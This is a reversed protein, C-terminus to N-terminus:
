ALVKGATVHKHAGNSLELGWNIVGSQDGRPLLTKLQVEFMLDHSSM